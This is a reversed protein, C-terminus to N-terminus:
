KNSFNGGFIGMLNQMETALSSTQSAMYNTSINCFIDAIEKETDTKKIAMFHSFNTLRDFVVLIKDKGESPPLGDIFYM